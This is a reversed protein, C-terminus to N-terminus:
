VISLARLLEQYATERNEAPQTCDYIVALLVKLQGVTARVRISDEDQRVREILLDVADKFQQPLPSGREWKALRERTVGLVDALEKQTLRLRVRLTRLEIASSM